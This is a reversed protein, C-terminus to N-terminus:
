KNLQLKLDSTEPKEPQFDAGSGVILNIRCFSKQNGFAAAVKEDEIMQLAVM